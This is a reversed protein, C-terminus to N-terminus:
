MWSPKNMGGRVRQIISEMYTISNIINDTDAYPIFDIVMNEIQSNYSDLSQKYDQLVQVNDQKKRIGFDKFNMEGDSSMAIFPVINVLEQTRRLYISVLESKNLLKLEKKTYFRLIKKKPKYGLTSSARSSSNEQAILSTTSVLSTIFLILYIFKRM